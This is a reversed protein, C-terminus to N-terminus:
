TGIVKTLGFGQSMEDLANPSTPLKNFVNKFFEGRTANSYTKQHFSSLLKGARLGAENSMLNIKRIREDANFNSISENTVFISSGGRVGRAALMAAQTGLNKRLDRMANLSEDESQLRALQINQNIGAQELKAGMKGMRIQEQKGLWDVVMGGAQMSLLLALPIPM